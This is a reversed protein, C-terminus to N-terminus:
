NLINKLDKVLLNGQKTLGWVYVVKGTKSCPRKGKEELFPKFFDNALEHIRPRTKNPDEFGLHVAVEFASSPKGIEDVACLIDQYRENLSSPNSVIEIYSELSSDRVGTPKGRLVLLKELIHRCDTHRYKYHPCDCVWVGDVMRTNYNNM